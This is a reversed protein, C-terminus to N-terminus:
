SEKTAPAYSLCNACCAIGALPKAVSCEKFVSCALTKVMVKGSCTACQVKNGTEEGLHVCPPKQMKAISKQAPLKEYHAKLAPNHLWAFCVACGGKRTGSTIQPNIKDSDHECVLIM